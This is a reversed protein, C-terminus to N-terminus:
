KPTREKSMADTPELPPLASLMAQAERAGLRAMADVLANRRPRPQTADAPALAGAMRAESEAITARMEAREHELDIIGEGRGGGGVGSGRGGGNWRGAGEGAGKQRRKGARCDGLLWRVKQEVHALRQAPSAATREAAFTRAAVVGEAAALEPTVGDRAAAPEGEVARRIRAALAEVASWRVADHLPPGYLDRGELLEALVPDEHVSPWDLPPTDHRALTVVAGDRETVDRGDRDVTVDRGADREGEGSQISRPHTEDREREKRQLFSSGSFLDPDVARSASRSAVADRFGDRSPLLSAPRSAVGDSNTVATVIRGDREGDRADRFGDREHRVLTVFNTVIPQLATVIATVFEAVLPDAAPEAPAGSAPGADAKATRAAQRYRRAREAPTLPM